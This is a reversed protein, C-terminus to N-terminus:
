IFVGKYLENSIENIIHFDDGIGEIRIMRAKVYTTEPQIFDRIKGIRMVTMGNYKIKDRLAEKEVETCTYYELSPFITNDNNFASVKTIVDPRAKINQLNFGYLDKTLDLQEARLEKGIAVDAIGAAGSALTAGVGGIIAGYVGGVMAGSAAGSAGAQLTGGIAGAIDSVLAYKNQVEINEVQRNFAMEYTKNQLQYTVWADKVRSISFDGSLILGRAEQDFTQGYLGGFNPALRIYPTYPKYFCDVNWNNVSGGNKVVNFEWSSAWNPSNLRYFSCDNEIKWNEQPIIIKPSNLSLKFKSSKVWFGVGFTQRLFDVDEISPKEGIYLLEYSSESIDELFFSVRNNRFSYPMQNLIPSYPLIQVDYVSEGGLEAINTAWRIADEIGIRKGTVSGEGRKYIGYDGYPIALIDFVADETENHTESFSYNLSEENDEIENLEIVYRQIKLEVKFTVTSTNTPRFSLATGELSENAEVYISAYENSSKVTELKDFTEIFKTKVNYLKGTSSDFIKSYNLEPIEEFYQNNGDIIKNAFNSGYFINKIQEITSPLSQSEITRADPEYGHEDGVYQGSYLNYLFKRNWIYDSILGNDQYQRTKLFLQFTSNNDILDLNRNYYEYNEIGNVILTDDYDNKLLSGSLQKNKEMYVCLWGIGMKDKILEQSTKIQNFQMNESNYIAPDDYNVTAKEIFAPSDVIINYYDAVVDRHLNLKYQGARTRTSELIFWRGIINGEQNVELLYDGTGDYDGAGIVHQTDVYDNPNFNTGQLVYHIYSEYGSITEERKILRNFYNNYKLIYLNTM